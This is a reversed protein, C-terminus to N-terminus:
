RHQVAQHGLRVLLIPVGWPGLTLATRLLVADIVSGGAQVGAWGLSRFLLGRREPRLFVAAVPRVSDIATRQKEPLAEFMQRAVAGVLAQRGSATTFDDARM